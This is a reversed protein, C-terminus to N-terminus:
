SGIADQIRSEVRGRDVNCGMLKWPRVYRYGEVVDSMALLVKTIVRHDPLLLRREDSTKRPKQDVFELILAM